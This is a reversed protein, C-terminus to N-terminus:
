SVRFIGPSPGGSRCFCRLCGPVAADRGALLPVRRGRHGGGGAALVGALVLVRLVAAM